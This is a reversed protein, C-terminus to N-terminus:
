HCLQRPSAPAPQRQGGDDLAAAAPQHALLILGREPHQWRVMAEVGVFQNLHNVQPQYHLLFQGEALASRLDAEIQARALVVAQMQPDFFHLTNRGAAKSQYMALDAHRLLDGVSHQSGLFPAIGISPTSRYQYQALKYPAALASLIAEGIDQAAQKLEETDASLAELVVVFEDGGLRAVTDGSRVCGNLRQAM